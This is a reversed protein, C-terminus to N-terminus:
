YAHAKNEVLDIKLQKGLAHAVKELQKLTPWHRPDELRQVAPWSTGLARALDAKSRGKRALRFLIASQVRASPAILFHTKTAKSPRPIRMGEELRGELTLTLVESANLLAEELNEGETLAESFDLFRVLYHGDSEKSINAPYLLNMNM